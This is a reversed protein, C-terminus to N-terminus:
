KQDGGNLMEGVKELCKMADDLTNAAIRDGRTTLESSSVVLMRFANALLNDPLGKIKKAMERADGSFEMVPEHTM